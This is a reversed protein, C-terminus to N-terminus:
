LLQFIVFFHFNGMSHIMTYIKKVATKWISNDSVLVFLCSTKKKGIENNLNYFIETNRIRLKLQSIMLDAETSLSHLQM